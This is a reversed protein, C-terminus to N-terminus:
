NSLDRIVNNIFAENVTEIKSTNLMEMFTYMIKVRDVIKSIDLKGESMFEAHMDNHKIVSECMTHVMAHFVSKPRNRIENTKGTAIRTYSEKLSDDEPDIEGIKEQAQKLVATIDEHDKKNADIFDAMSDGVRQNIADSVAQSDSYDLQKFFEDRMEPTIRFTDPNSKDISQMVAQHSETIIKAIIQTTPSNSRMRRIIEFYGNENVYESVMARMISTTANDNLDDPHMSEKFMKYMAEILLNCRVSNSFSQLRSGIDQAASTHEIVMKSEKDFTYGRHNNAKDGKNRNNYNAILAETYLKTDRLHRDSFKFNEGYM